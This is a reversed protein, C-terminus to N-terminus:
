EASLLLFIFLAFYRRTEQAIAHLRKLPTQISSASPPFFARMVYSILITSLANIISRTQYICRNKYRMEVWQQLNRLLDTPRGLATIAFKFKQYFSNFKFSSFANM